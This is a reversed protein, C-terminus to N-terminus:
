ITTLSYGNSRYLKLIDMVKNLVEESNFPKFCLCNLVSDILSKRILTIGNTEISNVPPNSKTFVDIYNKGDRWHIEVAASDFSGSNYLDYLYYLLESSSLSDQGSYKKIFSAKLIHASANFLPNKIFFEKGRNKNIFIQKLNGEIKDLYPL